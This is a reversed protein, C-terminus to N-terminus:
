QSTFMAVQGNEDNGAILDIRVRKRQIQIEFRYNSKKDVYDAAQCEESLKVQWSKLCPHIKVL